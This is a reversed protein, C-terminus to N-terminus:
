RVQGRLSNVEEVIEEESTDKAADDLCELAAKLQDEVEYGLSIATQIALNKYREDTKAKSKLQALSMVPAIM